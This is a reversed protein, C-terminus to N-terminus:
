FNPRVDLFKVEPPSNLAFYSQFIIVSRLQEGM